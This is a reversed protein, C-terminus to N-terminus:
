RGPASPPRALPLRSPFGRPFLLLLAAPRSAHPRLDRPPGPKPVTGASRPCALSRPRLIKPPIQSRPHRGISRLATPRSQQRSLIATIPRRRIAKYGEGDRGNGGRGEGGLFSGSGEEAWGMSLETMSIAKSVM